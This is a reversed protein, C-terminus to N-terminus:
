IRGGLEGLGLDLEAGHTSGEFALVWLLDKIQGFPGSTRAGTRNRPGHAGPERDPDPHSMGGSRQRM